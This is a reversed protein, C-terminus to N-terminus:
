SPIEVIESVRVCFTKRVSTKDFGRREYWSDGVHLLFRKTFQRFSFMYGQLPILGRGYIDNMKETLWDKEQRTLKEGNLCKQKLQYVKSDKLQELAPVEWRVFKYAINDM